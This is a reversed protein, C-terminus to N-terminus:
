RVPDGVGDFARDTHRGRVRGSPRSRAPHGADPHNRRHGLRLRLCCPASRPLRRGVLRGGLLRRRHARRTDAGAAMADLSRQHTRKGIDEITWVQPSPGPEGPSDSIAGAMILQGETSGTLVSRSSPKAFLYLTHGRDMPVWHGFDQWAHLEWRRDALVAGVTRFDAEGDMLPWFWLPKSGRGDRPQDIEQTRYEDVLQM